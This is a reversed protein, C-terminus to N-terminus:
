PIEITVTIEKAENIGPLIRSVYVNELPQPPTTKQADFRVSGKCDKTKKLTIKVPPKMTTQPQPQKRQPHEALWYVAQRELEADTMKDLEAKFEDCAAQIAANQRQEAEEKTDCARGVHTGEPTLLGWKGQWSISPVVPLPARRSAEVIAAITQEKTM